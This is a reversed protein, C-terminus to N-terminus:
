VSSVFRPGHPCTPTPPVYNVPTLDIELSSRGWPLYLSLAWSDPSSDPRSLGEWARGMGELVFSSISCSAKTSPFRAVSALRTTRSVSSIM